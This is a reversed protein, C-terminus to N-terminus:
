EQRISADGKAYTHTGGPILDDVASMHANSSGFSRM